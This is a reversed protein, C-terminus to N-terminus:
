ARESSELEARLGKLFGLAFLGEAVVFLPGVMFSRVDDVFAPRRGEYHHGLFQFAWGIAFLAVGGGLWALTSTTAIAKGLSVFVALLLTMIAGTRVDLMLYWAAAMAAAVIAPTLAYGGLDLSPRALLTTLALVILPIGVAHTLVNRGDRHYERYHALQVALRSM